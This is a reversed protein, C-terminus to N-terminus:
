HHSVVEPESDNPERPAEKEVFALYNGERKLLNRASRREQFTPRHKMHANKDAYQSGALLWAGLYGLPNQGGARQGVYTKTRVCKPHVRCISFFNQLSANEKIGGLAEDEHERRLHLVDRAEAPLARPRM